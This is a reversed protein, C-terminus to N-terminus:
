RGTEMGWTMSAAKGHGDETTEISTGGSELSPSSPEKRRLGLLPKLPPPLTRRSEQRVSKKGADKEDEISKNIGEQFVKIFDKRASEQAQMTTTCGALVILAFASLKLPKIHSM